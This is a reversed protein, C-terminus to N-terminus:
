VLRPHGLSDSVLAKAFSPFTFTKQIGMNEGDLTWRCELLARAEATLQSEDSNPSFIPALSTDSSTPKISRMSATRRYLIQSSPPSLRRNLLTFVGTSM